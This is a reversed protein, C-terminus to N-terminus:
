TERAALPRASYETFWLLFFSWVIPIKPCNEVCKWWGGTLPVTYIVGFRFRTRMQTRALDWSGAQPLLINDWRIKVQPHPSLLAPSSLLGWWYYYHMALFSHQGHPNSILPLQIFILKPPPPLSPLSFSSSSSSSPSSSALSTRVTHLTRQITITRPLYSLYIFRFRAKRRLSVWYFTSKLAVKACVCVCM